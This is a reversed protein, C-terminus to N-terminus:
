DLPGVRDSAFARLRWAEAFLEVLSVLDFVPLRFAEVLDRRFTVLNPCELLFAGVSSERALLRGAVAVTGDRMAVVDLEARDGIVVEVFESCAEMGGIAVRKSDIGAAKLHAEALIGSHGTIIGVKRTPGLTAALLPALILASSVFPIRLESAIETQYISFLGCDTTIFNVGRAELRRAADLVPELREPHPERLDDLTFGRVVEHLVPFSFTAAHGPDGPVRPTTSDLMLIGAVHGYTPLGGRVSM